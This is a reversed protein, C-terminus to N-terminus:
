KSCTCAFCWLTSRLTNVCRNYVIIYAVCLFSCLVGQRGPVSTCVQQFYELMMRKTRKKEECNKLLWVRLTDRLCLETQIFLCTPPPTHDLLPPWRGVDVHLPHDRPPSPPSPIAPKSDSFPLSPLHILYWPPTPIYVPSILSTPYFCGLQFIAQYM